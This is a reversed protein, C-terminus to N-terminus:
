SRVGNAAAESYIARFKEAAGHWTYNVVVLKRANQGIRARLEPNKLLLITKKAFEEPTDAIMINKGDKVEPIGDCALTTAVTPQAMAMAELIKNKIGSGTTMPCVNVAARGMYERIDEVYGTVVINKGDALSFVEQPPNKGVIYFKIGPIEKRILPLIKRNFHVAAAVNPFFSMIGRFIVSSEEASYSESPIFYDSDVGNPVVRVDAGPSFKLLWNRDVPSVVVTTNFLRMIEKEYNRMKLWQSNYYIKAAPNKEERSNRWFLMSMADHPFFVAPPAPVSKRYLSTNVFDFHMIDPSFSGATEALKAAFSPDYFQTVCFPTREFLVNRIRKMGARPIRHAVIDARAVFKEVEPLYKREEENEALSLLYIEDRSSLEKLLHYSMLKIGEDIPYPFSHTIFLIKM